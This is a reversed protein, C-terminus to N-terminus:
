RPARQRPAAAGTAAVSGSRRGDAAPAKGACVYYDSGRASDNIVPVQDLWECYAPQLQMQRAGSAILGMYRRTPLLDHRATAWEDPSVFALAPVTRGDYTHVSVERAEYQHEMGALRGFDGVTLKLLM